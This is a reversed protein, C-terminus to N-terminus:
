QSSYRYQDSYESVHRTMVSQQSMHVCTVPSAASGVAVAAAVAAVAAVAVVAAVAHWPLSLEVAAQLLARTKNDRPKAAHAVKQLNRTAAM